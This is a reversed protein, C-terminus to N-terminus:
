VPMASKGLAANLAEGALFSRAKSLCVKPSGWELTKKAHPTGIRIADLAIFGFRHAINLRWDSKIAALNENIEAVDTELRNGTYRTATM